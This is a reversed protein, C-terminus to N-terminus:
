SSSIQNVFYIISPVQNMHVLSWSWLSCLFTSKVRLVALEFFKRWTVSWVMGSCTGKKKGQEEKEKPYALFCLYCDGNNFPSLLQSIDPILALKIM